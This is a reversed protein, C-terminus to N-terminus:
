LAATQSKAWGPCADSALWEREEETTARGKAANRHPFHGFRRVVARHEEAWATSLPLDPFAAQLATARAVCAEQDALRESHMLPMYLFSQEAASLSAEDGAAYAAYSVRVAEEDGAYAAPSGRFAGRSLQDLLVVTAM